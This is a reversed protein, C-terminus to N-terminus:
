MDKMMTFYVITGKGVQSKIDINGNL